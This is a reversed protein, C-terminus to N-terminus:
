KAGNGLYREIPGFDSYEAVGRTNLEMLLPTGRPRDVHFKVQIDISPWRIGSQTSVSRFIEIANTPHMFTVSLRYVSPCHCIPRADRERESFVYSCCHFPLLLQVFLV